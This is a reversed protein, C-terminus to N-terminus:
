RTLMPYPDRISYQLSLSPRVNREMITTFFLALALVACLLSM